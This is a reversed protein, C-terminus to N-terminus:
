AHYGIYITGGILEIKELKSGYLSSEVWYPDWDLGRPVVTLWDEDGDNTSIQLNKPAEHYEYVQIHNLNSNITPVNNGVRYYNVKKNYLTKEVDEKIFDLDFISILSWFVYSEDRDEEFDKTYKLGYPLFTIDGSTIYLLEDTEDDFILYIGEGLSHIHDKFDQNINIALSEKSFRYRFVEAQKRAIDVVALINVEPIGKITYFTDENSSVIWCDKYNAKAKEADAKLLFPGAVYNIKKRQIQKVLYNM